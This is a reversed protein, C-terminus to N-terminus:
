KTFEMALPKATVRQGTELLAQDYSELWLELRKAKRDAEAKEKKLAEEEEFRARSYAHNRNWAYQRKLSLIDDQGPPKFSGDANQITMISEYDPALDFRRYGVIEFGTEVGDDDYLPKSVDYVPQAIFRSESSRLFSAYMAAYRVPHIKREVVWNNMLYREYGFVIRLDPDILRLERCFWPEPEPHLVAPIFAM